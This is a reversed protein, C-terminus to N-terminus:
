ISEQDSSKKKTSFLKQNELPVFDCGIFMKLMKQRIDVSNIFYNTELFYSLSNTFRETYVTFIDSKNNQM